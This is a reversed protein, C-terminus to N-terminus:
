SYPRDPDSTPLALLLEDSGPDTLGHGAYYVFLMDTAKGAAERVADLVEAASSPQPLRVCHGPPLGWVSPDELLEGLRELNNAVPPIDALEASVYASTGVLVAYSAHPDALEM